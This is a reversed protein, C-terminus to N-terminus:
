DTRAASAARVEALPRKMRRAIRIMLLQAEFSDRHNSLADNCADFAKEMEGGDYYNRM